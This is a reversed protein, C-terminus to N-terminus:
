FRVSLGAYFYRGITDYTNPDTNSEIPSTLLPAEKDFLNQVGAFAQYRDGFKYAAHIHHYFYDDVTPNTIGALPNAVGNDIATAYKRDKLSSIWETRWTVSLDNSDYALSGTLRWEPIAATDGGVTGVRDVVRSQPNPQLTNKSVWTGLLSANFGADQGGWGMNDMRWRYNAAFDVGATHLSAVNALPVGWDIIEYTTTSRTFTRCFVSDVDNSQFCANLVGGPGGALREIADEIKIDYYDVTLNFGPLASPTLVFGATVTDSTEPTLNPNSVLRAELAAGNQQYVGIAAAPVGQAICLAAVQGTPNATASCPDIQAPYTNVLGGFLEYINPARAARQYLARLRLDSNVKVEGGAKYTWVEGASTYDSYRVALELGVYEAFALNSFLPVVAEAYVENVDFSGRTANREGFGASAFDLLVPAPNDQSEVSRREAGAAFGVPGAPLNFLDGTIQAALISETIKTSSINDVRLFDILEPSWTNLSTILVCQPNGSACRTPDTASPTSAEAFTRRSIDGKQVETTSLNSYSYTASWAWDNGFEGELGGLVRYMDRSYSIEREPFELPSAIRLAFPATPNPRAALLAAIEPTVFSANYPLGPVNTTQRANVATRSLVAASEIHNFSVEGFARIGNDFDYSGRGFVNTRALPIQIAYDGTLDFNTDREADFVRPVGNDLAYNVNTFGGAGNSTPVGILTGGLRSLTGSRIFGSGTDTLSYRSLDRANARITDREEYNIHLWASARDNSAGITAALGYTQGDGEGSIGYRSELQLGDFRDRLIFNVVGAMADSGYVASAGGTVLEVREVLSAPINNVDVIGKQSSAMFRRGNVLVLTRQAGLGRLNLSATADSEGTVNTSKTSGAVLQPLTNLYEEVTGASAIKLDEGTVTTVPSSSVLDARRIRSGTVIVDDLSTAGDPATSIPGTQAMAPGAAILACAAASSILALRLPAKVRM